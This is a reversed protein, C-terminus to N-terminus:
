FTSLNWFFYFLSRFSTELFVGYRTLCYSLSNAYVIGMLCYTLFGGLISVTGSDFWGRKEIAELCNFTSAGEGERQVGTLEGEM